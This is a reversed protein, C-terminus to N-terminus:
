GSLRGNGEGKAAGTNRENSLHALDGFPIHPLFTPDLYRRDAAVGPISGGRFCTRGTVTRVEEASMTFMRPEVTKPQGFALWRARYFGHTKGLDHQHITAIEQFSVKGHPPYNVMKGKGM